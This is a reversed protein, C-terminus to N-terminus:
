LKLVWVSAEEDPANAILIILDQKADYEMNYNMGLKFPFDAGTVKQWHDGSYDYLWTEAKKHKDIVAVMKGLKKNFVLPVSQGGPPREGQTAMKKTANDGAKYSHVDDKMKNGGYFLFIHNITDYVVNTHWQPYVKKGVKQWGGFDGLWDYIGNPRFGTIVGRDTDYGIAYPFFDISKGSFAQWYKNSFNYIWTPHQKIKQWLPKIKKGGFRNPALHGPYSAVILSDQLRDYEIAAFTHMAWPHNANIGAVAQGKANISYTEPADEPYAETWLLTQLDFTYLSNNWNNNHTNSGFLIIRNRLTDYASGAHAQRIFYGPEGQTQQHIKLWKNKPLIDSRNYIFPYIESTDITGQLKRKLSHWYWHDTIRDSFMFVFLLLVTCHVLFSSSVFYWKAINKIILTKNM